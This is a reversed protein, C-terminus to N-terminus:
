CSITSSKKPPRMPQKPEDNFFSSISSTIPVDEMDDDSGTLLDPQHYVGRSM